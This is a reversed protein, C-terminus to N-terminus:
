REMGAKPKEWDMFFIDISGQRLVLHFIDLTKLAFAVVVLATFSAQQASTPM